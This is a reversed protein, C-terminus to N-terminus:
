LVDVMVATFLAFLYFISYGFLQAAAKASYNLKLRITALVFLGGLAAASIGYILGLSGWIAPALSVGLLLVGHGVMHTLTTKKGHTVPLMPIGAKAYETDKYLALAWFHPPTWFFITLFLLIPTLTVDGTVAAWGIIPPFAGAAGGIVINQPTRPKLYITYVVDYFFISFALLGAALWNVALGMFVISFGSVFLAFGLAEESEMRHQPLPRRHTRTMLKDTEREWWMNFAGASGAGLALCLIAVFGILPHLSTGTIGMGAVLGAIGTFVVLTMVRPKLLAFFDSASATAPPSTAPNFATM